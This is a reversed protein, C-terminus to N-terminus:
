APHLTSSREAARAALRARLEAIRRMKLDEYGRVDMPAEAIEVVRDLGADDIGARVLALEAGIADLYEGVLAREARRM